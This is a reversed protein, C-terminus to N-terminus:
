GTEEEDDIEDCHVKESQVEYRGRSTIMSNKGPMDKRLIMM